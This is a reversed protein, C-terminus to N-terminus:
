SQCEKDDSNDKPKKKGIKNLILVVLFIGGMAAALLGWSLFGMRVAEQVYIESM